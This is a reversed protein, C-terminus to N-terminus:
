SRQIGEVASAVVALADQTIPQAAKRVAVEDAEPDNAKAVLAEAHELLVRLAGRLDQPAPRASDENAPLTRPEEGAEAPLIRPADEAPLIEPDDAAILPPPSPRVSTRALPVSPSQATFAGTMRAQYADRLERAAADVAAFREQLADTTRSGSPPTAEDILEDVSTLIRGLPGISVRDATRSDDSAAAPEPEAAPAASAARPGDNQPRTTAGSVDATLVGTALATTLAAAIWKSSM